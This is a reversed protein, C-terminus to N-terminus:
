NRVSPRHVSAMLAPWARFGERLAIRDRAQWSKIGALVQLALADSKLRDFDQPTLPKM